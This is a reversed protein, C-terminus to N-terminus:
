PFFQLPQEVQKPAVEPRAPPSPSFASFRTRTANTATLTGVSASTASVKGRDCPDKATPWVNKTSSHALAPSASAPRAATCTSTVYSRASSTTSSTTGLSHNPSKAWAKTFEVPVALLPGPTTADTPPQAGSPSSPSPTVGAQTFTAVNCICPCRGPLTASFTPGDPPPYPM